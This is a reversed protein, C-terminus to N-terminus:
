SPNGGGAAQAEPVLRPKPLADFRAQQDATLQARIAGRWQDLEAQRSEYEARIVRLRDELAQREGANMQSYRPSGKFEEALQQRRQTARQLVANFEALPAEINARQDASLALQGALADLTLWRDPFPAQDQAAAVGPVLLLVAAARSLWRM